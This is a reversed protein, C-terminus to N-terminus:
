LFFLGGFRGGCINDIDGTRIRGEMSTGRVMSIPSVSAARFVGVGRVRRDVAAATTATTAHTTGTLTITTTPTRTIVRLRRAGSRYRDNWNGGGRYFDACCRDKSLNAHPM